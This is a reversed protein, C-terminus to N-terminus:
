KGRESFVFDPIEIPTDVWRFHFGLRIARRQTLDGQRLTKDNRQFLMNASLTFQAHLGAFAYQAALRQRAAPATHQGNM